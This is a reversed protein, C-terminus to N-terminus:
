ISQPGLYELDDEHVEGTKSDYPIKDLFAKVNYDDFVKPNKIAKEIAENRLARAREQYKRSWFVIQIENYNVTCTKKDGEGRYAIGSRHIPVMRSKYKFDGGASPIYGSGDLIFDMLDEAQKKRPSDSIIYGCRNMLISVINDHSMMAKDAIYIMKKMGYDDATKEMMPLFTTIDSNNGPFLGFTVPLGNTDMFLGMQIIPEPRHEKSCGRVRLGGDIVNDPDDIECYYNTVDYYMLSTDRGSKRRIVDNLHILMDQSSDGIFRLANYIDDDSPKSNGLRFHPMQNWTALKSSPVVVRGICLLKYIVEMGSSIGWSRRRRVLFDDIELMHYMRLLPM